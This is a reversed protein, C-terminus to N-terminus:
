LFGLSWQCHFPLSPSLLLLLKVNTFLLKVESPHSSPLVKSFLVAPSPRIGPPSLKGCWVRELEGDWQSGNEDDIFNEVNVIKLKNKCASEEQISFLLEPYLPSDCKVTLCKFQGCVAFSFPCM